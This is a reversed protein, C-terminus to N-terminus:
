SRAARGVYLAVPIGFFVTHAILSKVLTAPDPAGSPGIHQVILLLTMGAMVVVGFVLGSVVPTRVLAPLPGFAAWAYISAWVISIVFHMAFGLIAYGPSAFAAAGVLASAVFQWIQILSAHNAIALFGDILAGGILGSVIGAAWVNAHARAAATQM